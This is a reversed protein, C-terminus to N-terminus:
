DNVKIGLCHVEKKVNSGRKKGKTSSANVNLVKNNLRLIRLCKEVRHFLICIFYKWKDIIRTYFYFYFRVQSNFIFIHYVSILTPM